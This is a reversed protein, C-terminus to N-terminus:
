IAYNVISWGGEANKVAAYVTQNTDDVAIYYADTDLIYKQIANGDWDFVLIVNSKRGKEFFKKDSYLAYIYKSTASLNIYGVSSNETLDVSQYIGDSMPKYLPDAFRLSKILKIKQGVIEVIDLNSSFNVSYAFVNKGPQMVLDGQNALYKTYMNFADDSANYVNIGYDLIKSNKDFLLYQYKSNYTGAGLFTSDNIAILRSIRADSIKYKALRVPHKVMSNNRLSDLSYKMVLGIQDDFVSFKKNRLYGYCGAPIEDPGQGITEFRTIYAGTNKDFLTYSEGSHLDYVILNEEDCVLGEIVALSDDPINSKKQSLLRSESFLDLVSHPKENKCAGLICIFLLILLFSNEKTKKKM